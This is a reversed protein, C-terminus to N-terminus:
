DRGRKADALLEELSTLQPAGEVLFPSRPALRRAEAVEARFRRGDGTGAYIRALLLHHRWNTPERDIAENADDVAADVNGDAEEAAARAAYATAGWPEADIGEGALERAAGPDDAALASDSDRIREVSVLTPLQAAAAAVAAAVLGWRLWISAFGPRTPEAGGAGAAAIGGLALVGIAGIEWIWDVGSYFLFVIFGAAMACGLGIDRDRRWTGRAALAAWLAGGFCALLAVLGPLGLEAAQELYISHADRIFESGGAERSWHFEFSGPGVGRAPDTEFADRASVWISYRTGGLSGLRQSPDSSSVAVTQQNRFEDWATGIPGKLAIAGLALCALGAVLAREAHRRRMRLRDLDVKTAAAALVACIGAAVLLATLVSGAGGDGTGRAIAEHDRVALIPLVSAGGAVLANFAATWRYRSLAVAAVVALATAAVGARSYSLYVSLTAVPVAALVASRVLAREAHASWALGIAVAMAGWCAVANWYDLPYSLRDIALIRAVEDTFTDPYLRSAVAFLPVILAATAFGAAAGQWTERNLGLYALTVIGLYQLVRALEATTREDSETWAHAVLTLVALATLGGLALQVPQGLPSRPLVGFGLGLAILAWIVLAVEHRVVTDYGGGDLALLLTLGLAAAFGAIRRYIV